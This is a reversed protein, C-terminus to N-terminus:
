YIVPTAPIIFFSNMYRIPIEAIIM